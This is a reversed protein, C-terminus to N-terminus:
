ILGKREWSKRIVELLCDNVVELIEFSTEFQDRKIKQSRYERVWFGPHVFNRLERTIHGYDAVTKRYYRRDSPLWNLDRAIELLIYLDARWLRKRSKVKQSYTNSKRLMHPYLLCMALLGAELSSGLMICGSIYQKNKGCKKAERNYSKQIEMLKDFRTM